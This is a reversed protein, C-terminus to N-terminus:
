TDAAYRKVEALMRDLRDLTSNDEVTVPKDRWIDPRRNKLWFIQALTDPPKHKKLKRVHKKQKGDPMEEIDTITEEYDYGTANRFMSNEVAQDVPAKGKKIAERFKPFRDQWAYYTSLGIGINGAIQPDTLGDRAWGEVRLLGDDTM